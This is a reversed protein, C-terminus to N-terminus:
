SRVYQALRHTIEVMVPFLASVAENILAQFALDAEETALELNLKEHVRLVATDRQSAIDPLSSDVLGGVMTLILPAQERAINYAECCHSKFESYAASQAGGMAEVMEKTLKLPPPFPKPDAGLIFGFDIHFLRGDERLLLNDLHRDGVGFIYTLVSYGACSKLFSERASAVTGLAAGLDNDHERLVSALARSSPVREVIGETLRTPLVVYPTLRLDYQQGRLLSDFVTIASVIFADQRLDDGTKYIIAFPSVTDDDPTEGERVVLLDLGIPQMASKFVTATAARVGVVRQDLPLLPPLALPPFSGLDRYKGSRDALLSRLFEIKKPRRASLAKIEAALSSLLDMLTQQRELESAWTPRLRRLTKRLSALTTALSPPSTPDEAAVVLKWYLAAAFTFSQIAM